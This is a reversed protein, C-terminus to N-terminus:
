ARTGMEYLPHCLMDVYDFSTRVDTCLQKILEQHGMHPKEFCNGPSNRRHSRLVNFVSGDDGQECVQVPFAHVLHKVVLEGYPTVSVDLVVCVKGERRGRGGEGTTGGGM